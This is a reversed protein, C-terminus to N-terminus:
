ARIAQMAPAPRPPGLRMFRSLMILLRLAPLMALSRLMLVALTSLVAAPPPLPAPACTSAHRSLSWAPEGPATGCTCALRVPRREM